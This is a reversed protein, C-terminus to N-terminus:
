MNKLYNRPRKRCPIAEETAGVSSISIGTNSRPCDEKEQRWSGEKGKEACEPGKWNELRGSAWKMTQIKQLAKRVVGAGVIEERRSVVRVRQVVFMRVASWM